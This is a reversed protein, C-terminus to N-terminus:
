AAVILNNCYRINDCGILNMSEKIPALRLSGWVSAHQVTSKLIANVEKVRDSSRFDNEIM